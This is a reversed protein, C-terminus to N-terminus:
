LRKRPKKIEEEFEERTRALRSPIGTKSSCRAIAKTLMRPYNREQNSYILRDFEIAEREHTRLRHEKEFEKEPFAKKFDKNFRLYRLHHNLEHFFSDIMKVEPMKIKLEDPKYYAMFIVPDEELLLTFPEYNVRIGENEIITQAIVNLEQELCKEFKKFLLSEETM